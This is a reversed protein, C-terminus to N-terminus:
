AVLSPNAGRADDDCVGVRAHAAARPAHSRVRPGGRRDRLHPAAAEHRSSVLDEAGRAAAGRRMRAAVLCAALAGVFALAASGSPTSPSATCGHTISPSPCGSSSAGPTLQCATSAVPGSAGTRTFRSPYISCVGQRDDTTFVPPNPTGPQISPFMVAMSDATHALGLFHGAEHAMAHDLDIADPSSPSWDTGSRIEMDADLVEGTEPKFTLTVLALTENLDNHPWAGEVVGIVNRTGDEGPTYDVIKADGVRELEIATIGPTCVANPATWGAFARALADSLRAYPLEPAERSLLHYTVCQSPHFLPAGETFCDPGAFSPPVPITRTRCFAGATSPLLASLAVAVAVIDARM